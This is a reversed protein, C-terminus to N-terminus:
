VGYAREMGIALERGTVMYGINTYGDFTREIDGIRSIMRVTKAKDSFIAYATAFDLSCFCVAIGDVLTMNGAIETGDAFTVTGMM